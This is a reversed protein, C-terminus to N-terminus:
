FVNFYLDINHCILSRDIRGVSGPSCPKELWCWIWCQVWTGSWFIVTKAKLCSLVFAFCSFAFIAFWSQFLREGGTTPKLRRANVDSQFSNLACDCDCVIRVKSSLLPGPCISRLFLPDVSHLNPNITANQDTPITAVPASTDSEEAFTPGSGLM